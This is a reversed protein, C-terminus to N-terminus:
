LAIGFIKVPIGGHDYLLIDPLLFCAIKQERLAPENLYIDQM